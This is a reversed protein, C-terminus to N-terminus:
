EGHITDGIFRNAQRKLNVDPNYPELPLKLEFANLRGIAALLKFVSVAEERNSEILAIQTLLYVQRLGLLDTVSRKLKPDTMEARLGNFARLVTQAQAKNVARVARVSVLDYWAGDANLSPMWKSRAQAIEEDTARMAAREAALDPSTQYTKVPGEELTESRGVTTTVM